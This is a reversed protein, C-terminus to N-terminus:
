ARQHKTAHVMPYPYSTAGRSRSQRGPGSKGRGGRSVYSWMMWMVVLICTVSMGMLTNVTVTEDVFQMTRCCHETEPIYSYHYGDSLAIAEIGGSVGQKGDKQDRVMITFKRPGETIWCSSRSYGRVGLYSVEFPRNYKHKSPPLQSTRACVPQVTCTPRCPPAM